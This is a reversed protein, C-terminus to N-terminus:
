DDEDDEDEEEEEEEEEGLLEEGKEPKPVPLHAIRWAEEEAGTPDDIEMIEPGLPYEQQIAPLPRPSFNNALYKLGSGVYINHFDKGQGAFCFAGPWINSRVVAIAFQKVLTSSVRVSWPPIAELSSDESLPTLM